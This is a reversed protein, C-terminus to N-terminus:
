ELNARSLAELIYKWSGSFRILTYSWCWKWHQAKAGRLRSHWECCTMVSSIVNDDIIKGDFSCTNAVSRHSLWVHTSNEEIYWVDMHHSAIHSYSINFAIVCLCPLEWLLTALAWANWSLSISTFTMLVTSANTSHKTFPYKSRETATIGVHM